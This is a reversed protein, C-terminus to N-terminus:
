QNFLGLDALNASTGRIGCIFEINVRNSSEARGPRILINSRSFLELSEACEEPKYM